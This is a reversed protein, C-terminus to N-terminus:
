RVRCRPFCARPRRRVCLFFPSPRLRATQPHRHKPACCCPPFKARQRWLVRVRRDRAWGASSVSLSIRPPICPPICSSSYVLLFVRPSICSSFCRESRSARSYNGAHAEAGRPELQGEIQEELQGERTARRAAKAQGDKANEGKNPSCTTCSRRRLRKSFRSM